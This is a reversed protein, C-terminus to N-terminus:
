FVDLLNIKLNVEAPPAKLFVFSFKFKWIKMYNSFLIEYFGVADRLKFACLGWIWDWYIEQFTTFNVLGFFFEWLLFIVWCQRKSIMEILDHTIKNKKSKEHFVAWHKFSEARIFIYYIFLFNKRRIRGIYFVDEM